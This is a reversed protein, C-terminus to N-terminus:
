LLFYHKGISTSLCPQPICTVPPCTVTVTPVTITSTTFTPTTVTFTTFTPTTVTFTTFTPTTVTFTTFTQTTVTFTTFNPVTVTFTTFTPTIMTSIPICTTPICTVPICSTTNTDGVDNLLIDRMAVPAKSPDDCMYEAPCLHCEYGGTQLQVTGTPCILCNQISVAGENPQYTGPPCGIQITGSEPANDNFFPCYHGVQCAECTNSDNKLSYKGPSCNNTASIFLCMYSM